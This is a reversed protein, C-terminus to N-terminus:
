KGFHPTIFSKASMGEQRPPSSCLFFVTYRRDQRCCSRSPNVVLLPACAGSCNVRLYSRAVPSCDPAVPTGPERMRGMRTRALADSVPESPLPRLVAPVQSFRFGAAPPSSFGGFHHRLGGQQGLSFGGSTEVPPPFATVTFTLTAVAFWYAQWQRLSVVEGFPEQECHSRAIPPPPRSPVAGPLALCVKQSAPPAVFPVARSCLSRLKLSLLDSGYRPALARGVAAATGTNWPPSAFRRKQLRTVVLDPSGAGAPAPRVPSLPRV